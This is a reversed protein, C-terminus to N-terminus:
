GADRVSAVARRMLMRVRPEEDDIAALVMLSGTVVPLLPEVARMAFEARRQAHQVEGDYTGALQMERLSLARAKAAGGILTLGLAAATLATKAVPHRSRRGTIIMGATGVAHAAISAAMVPSWRSLSIQEFQTVPLDASMSRAAQRRMERSSDSEDVPLSDTTGDSLPVTAASLVSGGFWTALGLDHLSRWTVQSAVSSRPLVSALRAPHLTFRTQAM